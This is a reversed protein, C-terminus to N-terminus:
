YGDPDNTFVFIDLDNPREWKDIAVELESIISAYEEKTIKEQILPLEVNLLHYIHFIGAVSGNIYLPIKYKNYETDLREFELYLRKAESICPSLWDSLAGGLQRKRSNNKRRSLRKRTNYKKRITM